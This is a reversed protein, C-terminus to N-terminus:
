ESPLEPLPQWHTIRELLETNAYFDHWIGDYIFGVQIEKFQNIILVDDSKFKGNQKPLRDQVKIWKDM